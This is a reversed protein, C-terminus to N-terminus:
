ALRTKYKTASHELLKGRAQSGECNRTEALRAHAALAESKFEPRSIGLKASPTQRLFYAPPIRV